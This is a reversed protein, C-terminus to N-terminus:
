RGSVHSPLLVRASMQVHLTVIASLAVGRANELFPSANYYLLLDVITDHGRATCEHLATTGDPLGSVHHVNAGNRTLQVPWVWPHSGLCHNFLPRPHLSRSNVPLAHM